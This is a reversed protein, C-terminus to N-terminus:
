TRVRPYLIGNPRFMFFVAVVILTAYHLWEGGYYFGLLSQAAALVIAGLVPAAVSGTGGVVIAMFGWLTWDLASFFSAGAKYAFLAGATGALAGVITTAVLNVRGVPIGISQAADMDDGCARALRGTSTYRRWAWLAVVVAVVGLVILLRQQSVRVGAVEFATGDLIAHGRIVRRGFIWGLFQSIVFLLAAMAVLATLEDGRQSRSMIPRMVGLEGGVAVVTSVGIGLGVGLLVPLGQDVGWNVIFPAIIAYGGIAVNLHGSAERGVFFALALFAFFAAEEAM